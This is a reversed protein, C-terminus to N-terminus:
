KKCIKRWLRKWWGQEASSWSALGNRELKKAAQKSLKVCNNERLEKQIKDDFDNQYKRYKNKYM